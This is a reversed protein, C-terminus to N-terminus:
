GLGLLARLFGVRIHRHLGVKVNDLVSLLEFLRPTQFSRAMGLEAIRHAPLKVVDRGELAISGASPKLVGSLLNLLTTKGAGNPGIIAFIEARGVTFSVDDLAKV